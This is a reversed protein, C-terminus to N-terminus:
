PKTPSPTESPAKAPGGARRGGMGMAGASGPPLIALTTPVFVGQKLGGRGAIMDGVKVDALTVIEGSGDAEGAPTANQAPPTGGAMSGARRRGRGKRFSTTEDVAIVQSVHDPRQVTLKLDDIATVKGTIYTKGLDERMKRVQEADVVAVFLAHLTKAPADLEGMAGVGDGVKIASVQIPQRDKVLRTNPTLSVQYIEDSDTKITVHDSAAATVTGRIMPSGALGAGEDSPTEQASSASVGAVLVVATLLYRVRRARMQM